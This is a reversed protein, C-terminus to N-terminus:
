HAVKKGGHHAADDDATDVPYHGQTKNEDPLGAM